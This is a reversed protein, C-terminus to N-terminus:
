PSDPTWSCACGVDNSAYAYRTEGTCSRSGRAFSTEASRSTSPMTTDGAMRGRSNPSM